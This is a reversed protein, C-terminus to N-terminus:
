KLLSGRKFNKIYGKEQSEEEEEEIGNEENELFIIRLLSM